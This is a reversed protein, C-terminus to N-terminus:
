QFNRRTRAHRSYGDDYPMMNLKETPNPPTTAVTTNQESPLMAKMVEEGPFKALDWQAMHRIYILLTIISALDMITVAVMIPYAPSSSPISRLSLALLIGASFLMAAGFFVFLSLIPNRVNLGLLSSGVLVFAAGVIGLLVAWRIYELVEAPLGTGLVPATGVVPALIYWLAYSLLIIASYWLFLIVGSGFIKVEFSHPQDAM